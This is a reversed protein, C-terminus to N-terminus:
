KRMEISMCDAKCAICDDVPSLKTKLVSPWGQGLGCALVVGSMPSLNPCRRMRAQKVKKGLTESEYQSDKRKRSILADIV